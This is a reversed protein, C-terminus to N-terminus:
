YENLFLEVVTGVDNNSWLFNVQGSKPLTYIGIYGGDSRRQHTLTPIHRRPHELTVTYIQWTDLNCCAPQQYRRDVRVKHVTSRRVCPCGWTCRWTDVSDLRCSRTSPSTPLDAYWLCDTWCQRESLVPGGCEMNVAYVVGAASRCYVCVCEVSDVLKFIWV